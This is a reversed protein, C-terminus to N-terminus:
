KMLIFYLPQHPFPRRYSMSYHLRYNGANFIVGITDSALPLTPITYSSYFAKPDFIFLYYLQRNSNIIERYCPYWFFGTYTSSKEFTQRIRFGWVVM